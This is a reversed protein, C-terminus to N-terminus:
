EWNSDRQSAQAPPSEVLRLQINPRSPAKGPLTPHQTRQQEQRGLFLNQYAAYEARHAKNLYTPRWPMWKTKLDGNKVSLECMFPGVKFRM